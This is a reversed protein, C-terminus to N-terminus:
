KSNIKQKMLDFLQNRISWYTEDSTLNFLMELTNMANRTYNDLLHKELTNM